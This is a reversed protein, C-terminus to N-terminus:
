SMESKEIIYDIYSSLLITAIKTQYSDNQLNKSEYFNSLFGCEILASVCGCHKLLYISDDVETSLRRCDPCLSICLKEQLINGLERSNEDHGYFVQAGSPQSSPYFNQHISFLIGHPYDRILRLRQQQDAKKCQSISVAEDPYNIEETDRTMVTSLGFLHCLSNLKLAIILNIESEKVGEATSAGGDLGGHGPDIILVANSANYEIAEIDSCPPFPIFSVVCLAFGILVAVGRIPIRSVM